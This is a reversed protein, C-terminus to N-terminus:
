VRSRFAFTVVENGEDNEYLPVIDLVVPMGVRVEERRVLLQTEVMVENELEVYGLIFPEFDEKSSGDWYPPKPRFGQTTWTWVTGVRTLAKSHVGDSGCRPCSPSSPFTINACKPCLGGMLYPEDSPWTFLGPAIPVQVSTIM